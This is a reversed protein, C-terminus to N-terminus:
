PRLRRIDAGKWSPVWAEGSIESVVFPGPGVAVSGTVRNTAPDVIAVRNQAVIPAWVKGGVIAPDGIPTDALKMQAVVRNSRPDIRTLTGGISAIWVADASTATWSSRAVQIKAVIKGSRPDIRVVPGGLGAVWV